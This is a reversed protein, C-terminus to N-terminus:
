LQSSSATAGTSNGFCPEWDRGYRMPDWPRKRQVDSVGVVEAEVEGMICKENM